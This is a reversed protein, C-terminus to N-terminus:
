LLPAFLKIANRILKEFLNLRATDRDIERSISVTKLFEDRIEGIVSCGYMWIANEFHHALSRYDLNITGVLAYVDDSVVTKEHIFGPLYEYIKVGASILHPYASKTM